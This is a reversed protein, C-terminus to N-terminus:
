AVEQAEGDTFEVRRVLRKGGQQQELQTVREKLAGIENIWGSISDANANLAEMTTLIARQADTLQAMEDEEEEDEPPTWVGTDALYGLIARADVSAVHEINDHLYAADQGPPFGGSPVPSGCGHEIIIGPTRDSTARFAYYDWTNPNRRANVIPIPVEETWREEWKRIAEDAFVGLPDLRARDCFAGTNRGAGYVAADYHLSLFLHYDEAVQPPAAVVVGNILWAGVIVTEVGVEELREAIRWALDTTWDAEGPAGGGGARNPPYNASHGAQILVRAM